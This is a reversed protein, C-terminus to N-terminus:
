FVEPIVRSGPALVRAVPVGIDARTLDAVMPAHGFAVASRKVVDELDDALSGRAPVEQIGAGGEVLAPYDTALQKQAGAKLDDRAGSIYALRSQAAETIARSLAIEASLHCGYGMFPPPYDDCTIRVVFVSLGTPSPVARCEMTVRARAMLEHLVNIVPADLSVPDVIEGKDKGTLWGTVADREVVEYLAHLTAEILTNGSALGNTSEFFVPANWGTKRTLRFAVTDRPVLTETGDTLSRGAVWAIPLGEHLVTPSSLPLAKVDYGLHLERPPSVTLAEMPQEAHWLEISEMMASLKALDPTVGKGQSVALTRSAPRIAQFTPIGIHDLRTIDAVRTIGVLPAAQGAMELTKAPGVARDTGPLLVKSTDAASRLWTTDSM